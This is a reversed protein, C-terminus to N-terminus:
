PPTSRHIAVRGHRQQAVGDRRHDFGVARDIAVPVLDHRDDHLRGLLRLSATSYAM